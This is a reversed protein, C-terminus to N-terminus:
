CTVFLTVVTGLGEEVGPFGDSAHHAFAGPLHCVGAKVPGLVPGIEQSQGEILSILEGTLLAEEYRGCRHAIDLGVHVKPQFASMQGLATSSALMALGLPRMGGVPATR